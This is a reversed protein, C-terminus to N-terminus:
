EEIDQRRLRKYATKPSNPRAEKTGRQKHKTKSM